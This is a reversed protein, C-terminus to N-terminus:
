TDGCKQKLGGAGCALRARMRENEFYLRLWLALGFDQSWYFRKVSATQDNHYLLPPDRSLLSFDDAAIDKLLERNQQYTISSGVHDELQGLETAAHAWLAQGPIETRLRAQPFRPSCGARKLDALRLTIMIPAGAYYAWIDDDGAKRSLAACLADAAPEDVQRLFLFVHMQIGADAPNPDHGPDLCQYKDRPALWTRYLGDPRRFRTM